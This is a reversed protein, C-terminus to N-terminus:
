IVMILTVYCINKKLELQIYIIILCILLHLIIPKEHWEGFHKKMSNVIEGLTAYELAAEIIPKVLNLKSKCAKEINLLKENVKTNDRNRKLECLSEIQKREVDDSIKLIPIDVDDNENQFKNIGM